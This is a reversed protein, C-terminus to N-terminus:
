VRHIRLVYYFIRILIYEKNKKKNWQSDLVKNRFESHKESLLLKSDKQGTLEELFREFHRNIFYSPYKNLLLAIRIKGTEEALNESHSCIRIARLLASFPINEMVQPPHASNLPLIYPQAALKRIAKSRFNPTEVEIRVDLYDVHKGTEFTLGINKDVKGLEILIKDM